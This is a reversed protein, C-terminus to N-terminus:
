GQRRVSWGGSACAYLSTDRGPELEAILERRPHIHVWEFEVSSVSAVREPWLHRAVQTARDLNLALEGFLNFALPQSSLLDEFIRPYGYLKRKRGARSLNSRFESRVFEGIAPTLFNWLQEEAAPM